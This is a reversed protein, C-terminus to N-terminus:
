INERDYPAESFEYENGIEAFLKEELLNINRGEGSFIIRLINQKKTDTWVEFDIAENPLSYFNILYNESIKSEQAEEIELGVLLIYKVFFDGKVFFKPIYLKKM